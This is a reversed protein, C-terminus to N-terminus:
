VLRCTRCQNFTAMAQRLLLFRKCHYHTAGIGSNRRFENEIYAQAVNKDNAGGSFHNILNPQAADLICNFM